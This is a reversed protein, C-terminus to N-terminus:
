VKIIKINLDIALDVDDKSGSNTNDTVNNEYEKIGLNAVANEFYDNFGETLELDDSIIENCNSLPWQLLSFVKIM